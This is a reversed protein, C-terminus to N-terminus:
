IVGLPAIQDSDVSNAIGEGDKLPMERDFVKTQISNSLSNLFAIVPLLCVIGSSNGTIEYLSFCEADSRMGIKAKVTRIM